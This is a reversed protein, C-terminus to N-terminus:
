ARRLALNNDFPVLRTLPTPGTACASQLGPDINSPDGEASVSILLSWDDAAAPTWEFPGYVTSGGAPIRDPGAGAAPPILATWSAARDWNVIAADPQYYGRIVVGTAEAWGRNRVEVYVHNPQGAVPAQHRRILGPAQRNWLADAGQNPRPYADDAGICVDVKPQGPGTVLEPLPGPGAGPQYLGQQTFSWYIVKTISGGPFTEPDPNDNLLTARDANVLLTVFADVLNAPVSEAPPLQSIARIILYALYRAARERVFQENDPAGGIAEYVRFLTTSLLQEQLYGGPDGPDHVDKDGGWCWGEGSANCRRQTGGHYRWGVASGLHRNQQMLWPFTAYREEGLLASCPDSLIAALSDGASHAFGLTPAGTRAWLLVHCFEHLAVNVDCAAGLGNDTDQQAMGFIISEARTWDGNGTVYAGVDGGMGLPDVTLVPPPTNPPFFGDYLKLNQLIRFM